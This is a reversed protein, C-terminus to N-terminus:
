RDRVNLASPLSAVMGVLQQRAGDSLGDDSEEDSSCEDSESGDASSEDEVDKEGSEESEAESEEEGYRRPGRKMSKIRQSDKTPLYCGTLDPAFPQQQQQVSSLM